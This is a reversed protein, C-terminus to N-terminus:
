PLIYFEQKTPMIVRAGKIKLKTGDEVCKECARFVLSHSDEFFCKVYEKAQSLYGGDDATNEMFSAKYFMKGNKAETPGIITADISDFKRAVRSLDIHRNEM